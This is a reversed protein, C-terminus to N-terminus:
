KKNDYDTKNLISEAFKYLNEYYANINQYIKHEKKYKDGVLITYMGLKNGFEIDSNSNGIMISQSFDVAPFDKKVEFAMGINPKRNIATPHIDSCFYISSIEGGAKRIESLMYAHVKELDHLTMVGRGIGRQNTIIFIHEFQKSLVAIAELAGEIFVFEEINKAYDNPREVNIVGDRDLFIYKYQNLNNM